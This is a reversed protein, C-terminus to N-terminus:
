EASAENGVETEMRSVLGWDGLVTYSRPIALLVLILMMPIARPDRRDARHHGGAAGKTQM